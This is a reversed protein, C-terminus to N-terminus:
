IELNGVPELFIGGAEPGLTWRIEGAFDGHREVRLRVHEGVFITEGIIAEKAKFRFGGSSLDIVVVEIEGGDSAILVAPHHADVRPQRLIPKTPLVM